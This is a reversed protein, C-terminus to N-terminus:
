QKIEMNFGQKKNKSKKNEEEVYAQKVKVKIVNCFKLVKEKHKRDECVIDIIQTGLELQKNLYAQIEYYLTTKKLEEKATKFFLIKKIKIINELINNNILTQNFIKLDDVLQNVKIYEKSKMLTIFESEYSKNPKSGTLNIRFKNRVQEINKNEILFHILCHLANRKNYVEPKEKSLLYLTEIPRLEKLKEKM